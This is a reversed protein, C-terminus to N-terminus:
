SAAKVLNATLTKSSVKFMDGSIADVIFGPPFLINLLGVSQFETAVPQSTTLYGPKKFMVSNNYISAINLTIPTTGVPENNLYVLAGQPVSNVAIARNNDGFMTACGSVLMCGALSLIAMLRNFM